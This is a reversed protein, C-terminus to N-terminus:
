NISVLNFVFMLFFLFFFFSFLFSFLFPCFLFFFSFFFLQISAYHCIGTGFPLLSCMFVKWSDDQLQEVVAM